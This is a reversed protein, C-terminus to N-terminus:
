GGQEGAVEEERVEVVKEGRQMVLSAPSSRFAAWNAASGLALDLPGFEGVLGQRQNM